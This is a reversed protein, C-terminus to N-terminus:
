LLHYLSAYSSLARARWRIPRSTRNRGRADPCTHPVEGPRTSDSDQRTSSRQGKTPGESGLSDRWPRQRRRARGTRVGGGAVNLLHAMDAGRLLLTAAGLAAGLAAALVAAVTVVGLTAGPAAGTSGATASPSVTKGSGAAGAAGTASSSAGMASSSAGGPM